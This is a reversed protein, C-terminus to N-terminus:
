GAVLRQQYASPTSGFVQRFVAIFASASSYGPDLAVAGVPEGSALMELARMLRARQRWASFTMGTELVFRRSLTRSSLAGWGAWAELDRPSAPDAVLAEAIRLLRADRPMPVSLPEPPLARIEDLIVETIRAQAPALATHRSLPWSAARAVAERLLGSIRITCARTPLSACVPEVVYGGWGEFPGHSHAWHSVHPPLWVAHSSPVLWVADAVGVTLLGRASGFLQGRAHSHAQSQHGADDRGSVVIVPPGDRWDILAPDFLLDSM